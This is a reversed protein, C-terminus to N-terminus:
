GDQNDEKMKQLVEAIEHFHRGTKRPADKKYDFGYSGDAHIFLFRDSTIKTVIAVGMPAIVEDGVQIEEKEQEYQRIKEIVESASFNDTVGVMKFNGFVENREAMSMHSIKRTAEWAECKGDKIGVKRGEAYAEKRAQEVYLCGGPCNHVANKFGKEYAEKRVQELDPETYPTLEIDTKVWTRKNCIEVRIGLYGGIDDATNGDTEITYKAM